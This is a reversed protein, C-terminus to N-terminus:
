QGPPVAALKKRITGVLLMLLPIGAMNIPLAYYVWYTKMYGFTYAHSPVFMALCFFFPATFWILTRWNKAKFLQATGYSAAFFYVSLKIFVSLIWVLVAIIELNQIFGLISIYSTVDFSPHRLKASIDPGFVLLVCVAVITVTLASLTIGWLAGKLAKDPKDTFSVLMLMIVSEGLFALPTLAGKSIPVVGTDTFVPLLNAANFDKMSFIILMVVSFMIIPGFVECCRGIGEIGGIYTIYVLLLLMTFLLVWSPTRPLLVTITFDAFERLINGIVSYWQVLYVLVIVTGLWKGLIRKSFVILTQRPNLLATKVAIYVILVGLVSAILYSIWVDQKADKMVPSITLLIINGTQFTFILWFIQLGSLKM